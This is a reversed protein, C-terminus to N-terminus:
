LGLGSSLFDWVQVRAHRLLPGATLAFGSSATRNVLAGPDAVWCVPRGVNRFVDDSIKSIKSRQGDPRIWALVGSGILWSTYIEAYGHRGAFKLFFTRTEPLGLFFRADRWRCSGVRFIAM